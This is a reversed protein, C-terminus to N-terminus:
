RGWHAVAQLLPSLYTLDVPSRNVFCAPNSFLFDSALVTEESVSFCLPSPALGRQWAAPSSSPAPRATVKVRKERGGCGRLWCRARSATQCLPPLGTIKGLLLCAQCIDCGTSFDDACCLMNWVKLWGRLPLSPTPSNHPLWVTPRGWPGCGEPPLLSGGGDQGRRDAEKEWGKAPRQMSSLAQPPELLLRGPCARAGFLFGLHWVLDPLLLAQSKSTTTKM